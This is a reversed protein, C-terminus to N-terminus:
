QRVDNFGRALKAAKDALEKDLREKERRKLEAESVEPKAPAEKQESFKKYLEPNRKVYLEKFLGFAEETQVDAEEQITVELMVFAEMEENSIAANGAAKAAEQAAAKPIPAPTPAKPAPAAKAIHKQYLEELLPTPLQTMNKGDIVFLSKKDPNAAVFAKIAEFLGKRDLGSKTKIPMLFLTFDGEPLVAEDHEVTLNTEGIVAKMNSLSPANNMRQIEKKLQGWTGAESNLPNAGQKGATSYLTVVRM